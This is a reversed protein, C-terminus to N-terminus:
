TGKAELYAKFAVRLYIFWYARFRKVRFEIGRFGSGEASGKLFGWVGKSNYGRQFM